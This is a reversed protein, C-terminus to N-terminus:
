CAVILVCCFLLCWFLSVCGVAFLSCRGGVARGGRVIFLMRCVVFLVCRVVCLARCDVRGLWCVCRVVCCVRNTLWTCWVFLFLCRVVFLM